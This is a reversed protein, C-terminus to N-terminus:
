SILKRFGSMEKEATKKRVDLAREQGFPNGTQWKAERGVENM